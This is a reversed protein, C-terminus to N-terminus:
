AFRFKVSEPRPTDSDPNLSARHFLEIFASQVVVQVNSVSSCFCIRYYSDAFPRRRSSAVKGRRRRLVSDMAALHSSM